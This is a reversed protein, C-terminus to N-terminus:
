TGAGQIRSGGIRASPTREGPAVARRRRARQPRLYLSLLPGCLAIVTAAAIQVWFAGLLRAEAGQFQIATAGEDLGAPADIFVAIAVSVLGIPFLLRALRWRGLVSLVVLVAAAVAALLLVYAHASGATEGSGSIEPPPAVAEVEAYEPVGARVDRYEAFQSVALLVAAALTVLAVARAPTLVRAGWAIARKGAQLVALAIPRLFRLVALIALGLREALGLAMSAPIALMERAIAAVDALGQV